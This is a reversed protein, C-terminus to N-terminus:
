AAFSFGTQSGARTYNVGLVLRDYPKSFHFAELPSLHPSLPLACLVLLHSFCQLPRVSLRVSTSDGPLRTSNRQPHGASTPALFLSHEDGLPSTPTWVSPVHRQSDVRGVAGDSRSWSKAACASVHPPDTTVSLQCCGSHGGVWPHTDAAPPRPLRGAHESDGWVRRTQPLVLASHRWPPDSKADLQPRPRTKNGDTDRTSNKSVLATPPEPLTTTM